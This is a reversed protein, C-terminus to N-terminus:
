TFIFYPDMNADEQPVCIQTWIDEGGEIWGRIKDTGNIWDFALGEFKYEYPNLSWFPRIDTHHYLYRLIYVMTKWSQFVIPDTVHIQFGGCVAGTFKHYTPQFHVPRLVMGELHNKHLYNLLEKRISYPDIAPHGFQELSRTTGRGESLVTGELMVSGPYVLCGEATPLNPSPNVWLRGTDRWLMSPNWGTMDVIHLDLDWHNLEKFWEAMKGMTKGHRMPIPAMCVFSYWEPDPLNGETIDGGIPNPRDLVVIRIGKGLCAEMTLYMTWIYTYVRTGVDQLDIILTDIGDLMEDTPKRTEGYLSYVPIKWAPHITHSTEIMNDQVVSGFGHQPGFAKIVRDGFVGVLEDLGNEMRWSVSASHGLYAIRGVILAQADVSTLLNDLGSNVM